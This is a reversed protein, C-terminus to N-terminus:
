DYEGPKCQKLMIESGDEVEEVNRRGNSRRFCMRYFGRIGPATLQIMVATFSCHAFALVQVVVDAMQIQAKWENDTRQLAATSFQIINILILPFNLFIYSLLILLSCKSWAEETRYLTLNVEDEEIRRSHLHFKQRSQILTKNNKKM